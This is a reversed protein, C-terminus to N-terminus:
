PAGYMEKDTNVDRTHSRSSSPAERWGQEYDSFNYETRSMRRVNNVIKKVRAREQRRQYAAEDRLLNLVDRQKFYGSHIDMRLQAREVKRALRDTM